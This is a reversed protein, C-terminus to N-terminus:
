STQGMVVANIWAVIVEKTKTLRCAMDILFTTVHVQAWTVGNTMIRLKALGHVLVNREIHADIGLLSMVHAQEIVIGMIGDKIHTVLATAIPFRIREILNIAAIDIEEQDIARLKLIHDAAKGIEGTLASHWRQM